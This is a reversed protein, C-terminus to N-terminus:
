FDQMLSWVVVRDDGLSSLVINHSVKATNNEEWSLMESCIAATRGSERSWEEEGQVLILFPLKFGKLCLCPGGKMQLFLHSSRVLSSVRLSSLRFYVPFRTRMLRISSTRHTAYFIVLGTQTQFPSLLSLSLSTHPFSYYLPLYFFYPSPAQSLCASSCLCQLAFSMAKLHSTILLAGVAGGRNVWLAKFISPQCFASSRNDNGTEARCLHWKWAWCGPKLILYVRVWRRWSILHPKTCQCGSSPCFGRMVIYLPEFEPLKSHWGRSM